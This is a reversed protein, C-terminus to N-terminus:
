PKRELASDAKSQARDWGVGYLDGHTSRIYKWGENMDRLAERLRDIEADAQMAIEAAAYIASQHGYRYAVGYGHLQSAEPAITLTKIKYSM